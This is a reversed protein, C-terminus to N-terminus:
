VLATDCLQNILRPVGRSATYVMGLADRKFLNLRGGAVRLRHWVYRTADHATLPLLHYDASVRQAFQTLEPARLMVRLQQQGVLIMQLLVHEDANINSLVRLEELTQQGLNQAEDVILVVRRGASYERILFDLFMQYLTVDDKDRFELGFALCVWQLLKGFSPSTNSILGVTITKEMRNLLHRVLTTKGCGVEGSLVCFGAQSMLAYEMLSLATQHASTLYLFKPDPTLAFPKQKFGYFSEYM